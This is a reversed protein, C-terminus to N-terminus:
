SFRDGVDAEVLCLLSRESEGLGTRGGSADIEDGASWNEHANVDDERAFERREPGRDGAISAPGWCGWASPLALGDMAKSGFVKLVPRVGRVPRVGPVPRVGIRPPGTEKGGGDGFVAAKRWMIFLGFPLAAVMVGFVRLAIM